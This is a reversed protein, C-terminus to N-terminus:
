QPKNKSTIDFGKNFFPTLLGMTMVLGYFKDLRAEFVGLLDFNGLVMFIELCFWIRLNQLPELSSFQGFVIWKPPSFNFIASFIFYCIEM